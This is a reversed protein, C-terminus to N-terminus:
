RLSHFYREIEPWASAFLDRFGSQSFARRVNPNSFILGAGFAILAVGGLIYLAEKDSPDRFTRELRRTIESAM